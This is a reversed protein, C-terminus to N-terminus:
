QKSWLKPTCVTFKHLANLKVGLFFVSSQWSSSPAEPSFNDKSGQYIFKLFTRKLMGGLTGRLAVEFGMM